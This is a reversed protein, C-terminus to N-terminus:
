NAFPFLFNHLDGLNKSDLMLDKKQQNNEPKELYKAITDLPKAEVEILPWRKKLKADQLSQSEHHM